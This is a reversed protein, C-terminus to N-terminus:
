RRRESQRVALLRDIASLLEERRGVLSGVFTQRVTLDSDLLLTIPQQNVSLARRLEATTSQYQPVQPLTSENAILHRELDPRSATESIFLIRLRKQDSLQELLGRLMPMEKICPPCEVAWLHVLLFSGPKVSVPAREWTLTKRDFRM